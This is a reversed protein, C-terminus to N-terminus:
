RGHRRRRRPVRLGVQQKHLEDVLVAVREGDRVGVGGGDGGDEVVNGLLECVVREHPERPALEGACDERAGTGQQRRLCTLAM